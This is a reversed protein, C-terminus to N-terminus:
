MVQKEKKLLIVSQKQIKLFLRFEIQLNVILHKVKVGLVNQAATQM